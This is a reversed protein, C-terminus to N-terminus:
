EHQSINSEPLALMELRTNVPRSEGGRGERGKENRSIPYDMTGLRM